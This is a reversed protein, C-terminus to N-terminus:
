TTYISTPLIQSCVLLHKSGRKTLDPTHKFGATPCAYNEMVRASIYPLGKACRTNCSPERQAVSAHEVFLLARELSDFRQQGTLANGVKVNYQVELSNCRDECFSFFGDWGLRPDHLM